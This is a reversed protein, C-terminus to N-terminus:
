KLRSLHNEIIQQQDFNKILLKEASTGALADAPCLGILESNQITVGLKQAEKKVDTFVTEMSTIQYNTLNMTVQAAKKGSEEVLMGLAKVAPRGGNSERITRAIKKAIKLDDSALNINYAILIMRAGVATAGATPHIKSPGFDPQRDPDRGIATKLGEFEGRRVEALNKYAPRTAAEEYLFVPIQLKDGIIEGLERALNVCEALRINKLPVLPIVDTAGLRPHEGRHKTLDILETAKRTAKFAAEIVAAPPGAFTIVSRNHSADMEHGMLIIRPVSNIEKVISDIVSPRRGESFNPVCEIVQM